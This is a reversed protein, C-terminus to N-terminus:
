NSKLILLENSSQYHHFNFTIRIKEITTIGLEEKIFPALTSNNSLLLTLLAINWYRKDILILRMRDQYQNTQIRRIYANYYPQYFQTWLRDEEGSYLGIVSNPANDSIFRDRAKLKPAYCRLTGGRQEIKCSIDDLLYELTYDCDIKRSSKEKFLDHFIGSIIELFNSKGSGNNGILISLGNGSEFDAIFDKLNKYNEIYLKKLRVM